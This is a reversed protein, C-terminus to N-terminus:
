NYYFFSTKIITDNNSVNSVSYKESIMKTEKPTLFSVFLICCMFSLCQICSFWIKFQSNIMRKEEIYPSIEGKM